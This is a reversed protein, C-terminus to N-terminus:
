HSTEGLRQWVDMAMWGYRLSYARAGRLAKCSQQTRKEEVADSFDRERRQMERKRRPGPHEERVRLGAILGWSEKNVFILFWNPFLTLMLAEGKM